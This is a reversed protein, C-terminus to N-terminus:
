GIPHAEMLAWREAGNLERWSVGEEVLDTVMAEVDFEALEDDSLFELIDFRAISRALATQRNM